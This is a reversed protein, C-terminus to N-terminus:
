RPYNVWLLALGIAFVVLGILVFPLTGGNWARKNLVARTRFIVGGIGMLDIGIATLAVPILM